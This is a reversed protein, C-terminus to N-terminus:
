VDDLNNEEDRKKRLEVLKNQIEDSRDFRKARQFTSKLRFLIFIAIIVLVIVIVPDM